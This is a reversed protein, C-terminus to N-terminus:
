VIAISVMGFFRIYILQTTHNKSNHTKSGIFCGFIFVTPRLFLFGAVSLYVGGVMLLVGAGILQPEPGYSSSSARYKNNNDPSLAVHSTTYHETDLQCDKECDNTECSAVFFLAFLCVLWWYRKFM